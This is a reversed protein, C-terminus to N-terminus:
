ENDETEENGNVEDGDDDDDVRAPGISFTALEAPTLSDYPNPVPPYVLVDPFEFLPEDWQGHIIEQNRRVIQLHQDMVDLHQDICCCMVFIGRFMKLIGTNSSSASSAGGNHTTRSPTVTPTSSSARHIMPDKYFKERTVAEIMYQIYSAFGCSRVLQHRHEL